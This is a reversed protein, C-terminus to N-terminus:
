LKKFKNSHYDLKGFLFFYIYTETAIPQTNTFVNRIRIKLKCTVNLVRIVYMYEMTQGLKQYKGSMLCPLLGNECM